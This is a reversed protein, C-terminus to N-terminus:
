GADPETGKNDSGAQGGAAPGNSDTAKGSHVTVQQGDHLRQIDDTAITAGSVLGSLIATRSGFSDGTEVPLAHATGDSIQFVIQQDLDSSLAATPVLLRQQEGVQIRVRLFDGPAIDRKPNDMRARVLLRATRPNASDDYERIEAVRGNPKGDLGLLQFQPHRGSVIADRMAHLDKTSVAVQVDIPDLSALGVLMSQNATVVDGVNVDTIGAHGSFPARVTAFEINLEDVMMRAEAANIRAGATDRNRTAQQMRETSAFGSSHLQTYRGVEAAYYTQDASAEARQATDQALAAAFPREDIQFLLDGKNVASGPQFPRRLIQGTVRAQLQVIEPSKAVATYTFAIPVMTTATTTVHVPVAPGVDPAGNASESVNDDGGFPLPMGDIGWGAIGAVVLLTAAIIVYQPRM